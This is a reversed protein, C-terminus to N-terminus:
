IRKSAIDNHLHLVSFSIIQQRKVELNGKKMPKQVCTINRSSQKEIHFLRPEYQEPLVKRFGTDAGGKLLTISDFYSKFLLSEHGQVERHQVPADNLYTDLEVTKYAAAGPQSFKM